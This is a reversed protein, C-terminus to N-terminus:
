SKLSNKMYYKKFGYIIYCTNSFSTCEVTFDRIFINLWVIDTISLKLTSVGQRYIDVVEVNGIEEVRKEKNEIERQLSYTQREIKEKNIQRLVWINELNSIASIIRLIKKRKMKYIHNIMAKACKILSLFYVRLYYIFLYFIMIIKVVIHRYINSWLRMLIKNKILKDALTWMKNYMNMFMITV